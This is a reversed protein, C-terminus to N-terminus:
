NRAPSFAGLDRVWRDTLEMLRQQSAVDLFTHTSDPMHEVRIRGAIGFPEMIEDFQAHYNYVQGVAGTYLCMVSVGREILAALGRAFEEPPPDKVFDGLLGGDVVEDNPTASARNVMNAVAEGWAEPLRIREMYYRLMARRTRYAYPDLLQLGVIRPDALAARFGIAAGSCLGSVVFRRTGIMRQLHDMAARIDSVAQDTFSRTSGEPRSDGLGSLDLRVTTLGLGALHRALKVNLRHPGIRHTVGANMLICAVDAAKAPPASTLIGLLGQDRRLQLVREASV